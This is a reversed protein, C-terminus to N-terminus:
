HRCGLWRRHSLLIVLVQFEAVHTFCDGFTKGEGLNTTTNTTATHTTTTPTYTTTTPHPTHKTTNTPTATPHQYHHHHPHTYQLTPPTCITTTTPTHTNYYQHPHHTYQLIPPYYGGSLGVNGMIVGICVVMVELLGWLVGVGWVSRWVGYSNGGMGGILGWLVGGGYMSGYGRIVGVIGWMYVVM